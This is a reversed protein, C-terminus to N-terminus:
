AADKSKNEFSQDTSDYVLFDNNALGTTFVNKLHTLEGLSLFISMPVPTQTDVYGFLDLREESTTNELKLYKKM